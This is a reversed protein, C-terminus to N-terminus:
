ERANNFSFSFIFGDRGLRWDGGRRRKEITALLDIVQYFMVTETLGESSESSIRKEKEAAAEPIPRWIM